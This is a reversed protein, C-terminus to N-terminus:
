GTSNMKLVEKSPFPYLGLKASNQFQEQSSRCNTRSTWLWRFIGSYNNLLLSLGLPLLKHSSMAWVISGWQAVFSIKKILRLRSFSHEGICNTVMMCMFVRLAIEVNQFVYKLNDSVIKRYLAPLTECNKDFDMYHKLHGCENLLDDYNLDNHYINALHKCKKQLADSAITKLESFFSFLNGIQSYAEARKTLEFILTDLIPLFTEVKFKESKSLLVKDASSSIDYRTLCVSRKWERKKEDSYHTDPCMSRAKFEYESFKDRTEPLYTKMSELLNTAVLINVDKSQLIKSTINMREVKDNWLIILFITELNEIEKWLGEAERMTVVEQENAASASDLAHKIKEFGGYLARVGDFHASWRTDSLRKVVFGKGLTSTLVNWRHTSAAFFSYLRQVFDFFKVTQQCCGAAKVGVLDLSHGACPLFITFEDIQHIRAQLGTYRGFMNSANDYSQGRCNSLPIKNDNLFDGVTDTLAKARLSIIPIFM